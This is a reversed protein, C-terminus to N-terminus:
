PLYCLRAGIHATTHSAARTTHLCVFGASTGANANGGRLLARWANVLGPSYFYDCFYTVSNGGTTKPLFIGKEDHHMFKPYGSASPINARYEYNNSTNDAFNVPNECSYFKSNGGAAEHFVSGGDCWEWIDGFPNEIGRYRNVKVVGSAHGFNPVTYTLEGTGNGLPNSTGCPILPNYLNFTNWVTSLVTTVGAGLGGQKFGEGTLAGNVAAQSNLTAHEIIFLEYLLMSHKWTIVNWKAGAARARAYNRFNVLSISTAPKGLLTRDTGDWAVQNGGGRYEVAPNVISWQKIPATRNVSSKYAGLYFKPVETFGPLASVSIKHHYVGASPNEVKRFYRPVEIMVQGDAGSLDAVSGDSKKSWDDSKLYYNVAGNDLLLCGRMLSQVPLTAHLGLSGTSAIRVLNPSSSAENIEVGYWDAATGFFGLMVNKRM